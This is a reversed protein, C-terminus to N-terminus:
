VRKSEYRERYAAPRLPTQTTSTKKACSLRRPPSDSKVASTIHCARGKSTKNKKQFVGVRMFATLTAQHLARFFRLQLRRVNKSACGRSAKVRGSHHFFLLRQFLAGFCVLGVRQNEQPRVLVM